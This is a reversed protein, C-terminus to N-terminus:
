FNQFTSAKCKCNTCFFEGSTMFFFIAAFIQANWERRDISRWPFFVGAVRSPLDGSWLPSSSDLSADLLLTRLKLLQQIMETSCQPVSSAVVPFRMPNPLHFIVQPLMKHYCTSVAIWPTVYKLTWTAVGGAPSACLLPLATFNRKDVLGEKAMRNASCFRTSCFMSFHPFTM